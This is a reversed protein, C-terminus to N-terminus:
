SDPFKHFNKPDRASPDFGDFGGGKFVKRCNDVDDDGDGDLDEDGDGGDDDEDGDGGSCGDGGDDDPEDALNESLGGDKQLILGHGGTRVDDM